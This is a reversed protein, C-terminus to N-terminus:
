RTRGKVLYGFGIADEEASPTTNPVIRMVRCKGTLAVASVSMRKWGNAVMCNEFLLEKRAIGEFTAILSGFADSLNQYPVKYPAIIPYADNEIIQTKM